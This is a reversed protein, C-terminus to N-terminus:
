SPVVINMLTDALRQKANETAATLPLRLQSSSILQQQALWWKILAPAPETFVQHILPELQKFSNRSGNIDGSAFRQYVEVYRQTHISASALMGGAAGQCLMAHFYADEGSLVPKMEYQSLALLLDLGGSSDKLGIVGDLDMVKRVTDLTMRSGTRAPIEYVMIPLGTRSVSSFHALIGEQTPRNYYPTVVLAADAGLEAAMETRKITSYTDNTGTGVVVPITKNLRILIEKTAQVMQKVEDWSVTPSEGTTGNVVLGQIDHNALHTIYKRYSEIDLKNDNSFPAIVPIYIGHIQQEKMM